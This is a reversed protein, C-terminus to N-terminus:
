RRRRADAREALETVREAPSPYLYQELGRPSYPLAGSVATRLAALVAGEDDSDVALGTGTETVIRAAENIGGVALIPRGSALYEFLKGTAEGSHRSTILLLVGAGRQLRVAEARGLQGVHEVADGLGAEAILRADEEDLRGALKLRFRGPREDALRRLGRLLPRPDRGWGGSLKGTHVLELRDGDPRRPPAVGADLDPDWANPVHAVEIGLRRRLDAAIPETAAMVADAGTLARREVARNLSRQAATPFEPLFREFTWGDRLDAIWAHGLRRRLALGVVHASENPSSSIVCDAPQQRLSRWAAALAMPAWSALFADPVLVRTLVAPLEPAAGGPPAASGDPAALPAIGALRRLRPSAMLDATRTVGREQEPDALTGFAGSTVVRVDHGARRLYKVIAGWRHAGSSPTPPYPHVIVLFARPSV